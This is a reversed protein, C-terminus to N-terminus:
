RHSREMAQIAEALDRQFRDCYEPDNIRMLTGAIESIDASFLGRIVSASVDERWLDKRLITKLIGALPALTLWEDFPVNNRAIWEWEKHCPHCLTILNDLDDSGGNDCPIIHHAELSDTEGCKVCERGDRAFAETRAKRYEPTDKRRAM